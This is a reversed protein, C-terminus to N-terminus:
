DYFFLVEALSVEIYCVYLSTARVQIDAPQTDPQRLVRVCHTRAPPVSSEDGGHYDAPFYGGRGDDGYSSCERVPAQLHSAQLPCYPLSSLGTPGHLDRRLQEIRDLHAPVSPSLDELM